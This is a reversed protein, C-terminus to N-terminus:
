GPPEGEPKLYAAEVGAHSQLARVARELAAPDSATLSYWRAMAADAVGPHMPSAKAHHRSLVDKVASPAVGDRLQFVAEM